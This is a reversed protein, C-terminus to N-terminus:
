ANIEQLVYEKDKPELLGNKELTFTLSRVAYALKDIRREVGDIRKGLTNEVSDIRKSFSRELRMYFVYGVALLVLMRINEASFILNLLTEMTAGGKFISFFQRFGSLGSSLIKGITTNAYFSEKFLPINQGPTL